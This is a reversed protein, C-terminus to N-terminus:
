HTERGHVVVVVVRELVELFRLEQQNAEGTVFINIVGDDFTYINM